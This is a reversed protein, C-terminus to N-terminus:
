IKNWIYSFQNAESELAILDETGITNSTYFNGKQINLVSFNVNEHNNSYTSANLLTLTSKINRKDIKERNGKFYLKILHPQGNIYLGLEPNSRVFIDENIWHAKGTDFWEVDKNKLFRRYQKIANNYNIVKRPNTERILEEFCEIPLREQHFDIILERLEKWYDFAPHYSDQYKISKVFNTKASVGKVTFDLFQTLGIQIKTEQKNM